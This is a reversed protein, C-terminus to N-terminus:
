VVSCRWGRKIKTFFESAPQEIDIFTRFPTLKIRPNIVKNDKLAISKKVVVSQSFGDDLTTLGNEEVITGLLQVLDLLEPTEVFNSKLAIIMDESNIYRNFEIHPTKGIAKYPNERTRDDSDIAALVQISKHTEASVIITQSFNEYEVKLTDVLGKITNFIITSVQPTKIVALTKDTYNYGNEKIINPQGLEVIKEIASRDM